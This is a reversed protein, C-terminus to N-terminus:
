LAALVASTAAATDADGGLDKTRLGQKLVTSVATEIREAAAYAKLGHRLLMAASLITGIPNAIGQGAIDPASGHIPEFLGPTDPTGLSASPALGISGVIASLEDSLIDGFLNETVVVDFSAPKTVLHMAMADVLVHDVTVTPYDKAVDDVVARWLRSTALVNAKDVSTLRGNRGKAAEFAVRAVRDVEERSYPMIDSAVDTGERHDGFYVGGTLERVILIDTDAVIDRRLPSAAELGEFLKSPRLNAFLELEKRLGLLGQEPRPAGQHRAAEDYKPGGVAGLLIADASVCSKLTQEPLPNGTADIGAGGFPCRDIALSLGADPAVATLVRIAADTVEPGIGDGPLITLRVTRSM